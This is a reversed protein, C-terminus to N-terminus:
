VRGKLENNNENHKKLTKGITLDYLIAGLIAGIIPGLIPVIWVNTGDTLGNNKFGALTAFVRPAFDRAPNIAYGHLTGFSTGIVVVILGVIIPALNAGAPTNNTDGCALVLFMLLFTGLIQDFLGTWFGNITPFTTLIGATNSLLPDVEIWKKHYIFFVIAAAIFFGILQAIIYYCVKSWPFRKTTALAITIAPNLHAGTIKGSVYIGFIVALGWAIHISLATGNEFLIVCAVVGAGFLFLVMSGLLEAVFEEKKSYM